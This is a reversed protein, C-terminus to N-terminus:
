KASDKWQQFEVDDEEEVFCINFEQEFQRFMHEPFSIHVGDTDAIMTFNQQMKNWADKLDKFVFM